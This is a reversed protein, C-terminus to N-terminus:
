APGAETSRFWELTRALGAELEIAPQYGLEGRIKRLDPCRRRPEGAPYNEPYRTLEIPVPYPFLGAVIKALSVVNIEEEEKGVNYVEGDRGRLLVKLFGATADSVYCYTRTQNGKDHVPLAQHRIGNMLFTPIVRYDNTKMGPGYVNFPRVIRVPVQHHWHYTACLTEGLRKSEDYCSRPGISSVNGWYDEPTPIFRPDPDGYIESSSFYLVGRAKKAHAHALMNRTGTVAVEITELPFQRYYVPSAIGAAHLLYDAALDAPLPKSVDCEVINVQPDHVDYIASDRSGTIFNDLVTVRCPTRLVSRNLQLLTGVLYSGLFGNGGSVLVTRGALAPAESAVARAAAEIDQRVIDNERM